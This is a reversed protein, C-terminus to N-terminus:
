AAFLTYRICSKRQGKTGENRVQPARSTESVEAHPRTAPAAEHSELGRRGANMVDIDVDGDQVADGKTEVVVILTRQWCSCGRGDNMKEGLSELAEQLLPHQKALFLM